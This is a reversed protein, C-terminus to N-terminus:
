FIWSRSANLIQNIIGNLKKIQKCRYTWNDNVCYASFQNNKGAKNKRLRVLIDSEYSQSWLPNPHLIELILNWNIYDVKGILDM